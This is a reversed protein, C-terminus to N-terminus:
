SRNLAKKKSLHERLLGKVFEACSLEGRAKDLAKKEVPNLRIKVQAWRAEYQREAERQRESRM